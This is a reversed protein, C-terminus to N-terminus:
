PAVIFLAALPAVNLLLVGVKYLAMGGYHIADFTEVSVKFWRAHLRYIPDHAVYFAGFWLCLIGYNVGISWLLIEKIEPASM